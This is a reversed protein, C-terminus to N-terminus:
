RVLTVNGRYEKEQGDIAVLKIKYIYTEEKCPQNLFTGNWGDDMNTTNFLLQGWRNFIELRYNGKYNRAMPQFTDNLGDDNPTFSNPIYINFDSVVTISKVMTDSCQNKDWVIMAVAYTGANDFNLVPDEWSSVPGANDIFHWSWRQLDPGKSTNSFLVQDVKEVPAQPEWTFDAKPPALVSIAFTQTNSCGTYSDKFKANLIHNGPVNLCTTFQADPLNQGTTEWGTIILSSTASSARNLKLRPCFPACGITTGDLSVQPIEYITINTITSNRCGNLDTVTLTYTGNRALNAAKFRINKGSMDFDYPGTWHYSNGGTGSMRITDYICVSSTVVSIQPVPLAFVTISVVATSSCNNASGTVTYQQNGYLTATVSHGTQTNLGLGPSWNYSTANGGAILKLPTGMCVEMTKSPVTTTPTLNVTVNLNLAPSSCGQSNGYVTFITSVTPSVVATGGMNSTTLGPISPSWSYNGGGQMTFTHSQGSCIAASPTSATIVPNAIVIFGANSISTCIGNSGAVTVAGPGPNYPPLASLSSSPGNFNSNYIDVPTTITYNNAGSVSVGISNPSGNFGQACLTTSSLAITLSPPSVISASAIATNTCGDTSTATVTYLGTANLAPGSIVPNQQTSSFGAPGAWQYTAGAVSSSTLQLVQSTCVTGGAAQVSPTPNVVVSVSASATCSNLATITLYYVGAQAPGVPSVYPTQATSNYGAPGTWAYATGGTATLQLADGFCRPSDSGITVPVPLIVISATAASTCGQAAGVVTYQTNVLPSDFLSSGFTNDSWTYTNAGSVSLVGSGQPCISVDSISLAPNSVFVVGVMGSVPCNNLDTVNLTYMYAGGQPQTTAFSSTAPGGLWSFQYPATGGVLTSTLVVSSNACATASGSAINLTLPPPQTIAFTNTIACGSLADTVTVTWNGAGLTTPNPQTVLNSGDTWSFVQNGSGGSLNTYSATGTNVGNCTLASTNNLNGTFPIASNFTATTSSICSSGIDMITLTYTGPSMGTVIPNVQGAPTWTYVYPGPGAASVTASGLSACSIGTTTFSLPPAPPNYISLSTTTSATCGQASAGIVTYTLPGNAVGTVMGPLNGPNWTYSFAGGPVIAYTAGQCVTPSTATITPIPLVAQALTQSNVCGLADTGYATYVMAAPPFGIAPSGPINGPQWTYTVAGSAILNVSSSPCGVTSTATLIPLPWATVTISSLLVNCGQPPTILASYNTTVTPTVVITNSNSGNVVWTQSLPGSITLTSPSGACVATPSATVQIAFGYSFIVLGNGPNWAPTNVQNTGGNFSGGGGGAGDCTGPGPSGGGGGGSYGGGGGGGNPSSGCTAIFVSSGGGGGYGGTSNGGAGGSIYSGGGFAFSGSGGNTTMGGGGAANVQPITGTAGGTGGVGGLGGSQGPEGNQFTTGGISVYASNAWNAGSGGGGGAVVFPNNLMDTVFSGGGGGNGAMVPSSASGAKGVLIKFVQGPTVNFVGVMRAGKGGDGGGQAGRAEIMMTSTCPPVTFTQIAGTYNFTQSFYQAQTTRSSFLLVIVWLLCICSFSNKVIYLVRKM